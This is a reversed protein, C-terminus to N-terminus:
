HLNKIPIHRKLNSNVNTAALITAKIQCLKCNFVLSHSGDEKTEKGVKNLEFYDEM